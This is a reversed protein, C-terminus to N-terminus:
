WTNFWELDSVKKEITRIFDLLLNLYRLSSLGSQPSALVIRMPGPFSSVVPFCGLLSFIACQGLRHWAEVLGDFSALCMAVEKEERKMVLYASNSSPLHVPPESCAYSLFCYKQKRPIVTCYLSISLLKLHCWNIFM